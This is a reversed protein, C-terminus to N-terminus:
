LPVLTAKKLFRVAVIPAILKEAVGLKLIVMPLATAVFKLSTAAPSILPSPLTSKKTSFVASLVNVGSIFALVPTPLMLKVYLAILVVLVGKPIITPSIFASPLGSIAVALLPVLEIPKYLFVVSLLRAGIMVENLGPLPGILLVTTIVPCFKLLVGVSLITNKPAIGARTVPALVPM